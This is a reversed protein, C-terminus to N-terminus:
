RQFARILFSNAGIVSFGACSIAIIALLGVAVAGGAAKSSFFAAVLAGIGFLLGITAYIPALFVQSMDALFVFVFAFFSLLASLGSLPSSESKQAQRSAYLSRRARFAPLTADDDDDVEALEFPNESRPPFPDGELPSLTVSSVPVTFARGCAACPVAFGGSNFRHLKHCWPCATEIM